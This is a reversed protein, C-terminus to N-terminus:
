PAASPYAVTLCNQQNALSLRNTVVVWSHRPACCNAGLLRGGGRRLGVDVGQTDDIFYELESSRLTSRCPM